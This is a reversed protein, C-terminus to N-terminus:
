RRDPKGSAMTPCFPLVARVTLGPRGARLEFAGGIQEMRSRMSSIGVGSDGDAKLAKLRPTKLGVGDDRIELVINARDRTLGIAVTKAGAHKHVNMLAEQVVRFLTLDGIPGVSPLGDDCQLDICLGTRSAFGDLFRRLTAHLGLRELNPPHLLYSFTRVERRAVSLCERIDRLIEAQEVDDSMRRELRSVTLDIAVLHQAVSDHLERAIRKREQEEAKLVATSAESLSDILRQQETVDTAFGLIEKVAGKHRRFVRENLEVWRWTGDVRRMRCRFASFEGGALHPLRARHAKALRRDGRHVLALLDGADADQRPHGLLAAIEGRQGKELDYVYTVGHNILNLQRLLFARSSRAPPHQEELHKAEL